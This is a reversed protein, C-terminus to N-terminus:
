RTGPESENLAPGSPADHFTDNVMSTVSCVGYESVGQSNAGITRTVSCFTFTDGPFTPAFM